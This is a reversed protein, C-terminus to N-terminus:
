IVQRRALHKTAMSRTAICLTPQILSENHLNQYALYTFFSSLMLSAGTFAYSKLKSILVSGFGAM